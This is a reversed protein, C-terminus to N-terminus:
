ALDHEVAFRTAAARSGVGLKAYISNLHRNVTRPSIFLKEAVQANTLGKAVLRLVEVERASLGTPDHEAAAPEPTASQELAYEFAQDLPMAKGEAWAAAFAAEGLGVRAAAVGRDYDARISPIVPVGVEERLAEAAGFLRTAWEHDGRMSVAAALLDLNVLGLGGRPEHLALVSEGLWAAAQEHDGQKLAAIGLNRLALSLAWDDGSERCIAVSEELSAQVVVYDEQTLAIIGLTALSTALGFEDKSKRFLEVSEEGLSRAVASAGQGLMVHGLIRLAQALGSKDELERWLTVSQELRSTATAQDGQMWALLGAGCFAKARSAPSAAPAPRGGTGEGTALAGDLWGRGESLYGRHFWFWLLAGALRLGTEGGKEERSWALAARLNDHEVELRALWARRDRGNIKPEVQEALQLFFNAHHRRVEAIEGSEQLKGQGYQRVTELLRYRAEGDQQAVLVLSKDVLHMLLDLVDDEAQIGVGACVEEAAELTFGGAFVSLRRFLAQEEESLLEHSWDITAELTRHRPDPARSETALLRFSDDLRQAIQEVSLGRTRPAALEIALPMGELRQCVRAVAPASRETLEFSPAAAKAREVFLHVAEYRTLDKTLRQHEPDPLSLPPVPWSSEGTIGLAERSTALIRLDPCARLLAGAFAACGDILHECNDLVLLMKKPRLHEALTQTLPRAPQERVELVSAVAQPVLESDSIPALEVLWAGEEHSGVMDSAVALALRTKGCGGAGTLTLLRVEGLLRKVEAIEEKRGVFSSLELPLNHPPREPAHLSPSPQAEQAPEVAHLKRSGGVASGIPISDGEGAGPPTM